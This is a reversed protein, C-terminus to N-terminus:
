KKIAIVPPTTSQRVPSILPNEPPHSRMQPPARESMKQDEDRRIDRGLHSSRPAKQNYCNPALPKAALLQQVKALHNRALTKMTPIKAQSLSVQIAKEQKIAPTLYRNATARPALSSTTKSAVVVVM